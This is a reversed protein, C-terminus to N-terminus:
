GWRAAALDIKASACFISGCRGGGELPLYLTAAATTADPFPARPPCCQVPTNMRQVIKGCSAGSRCKKYRGRSPPPYHAMVQAACRRGAPARFAHRFAWCSPSAGHFDDKACKTPTAKSCCCQHHCLPLPLLPLLLLPGLRPVTVGVQRPLISKQQVAFISGCRGGGELPLYLTPLTM